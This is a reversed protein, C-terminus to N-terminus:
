LVDIIIVIIQRCSTQCFRGANLCCCCCLRLGWQYVSNPYWLAQKKDVTNGSRIELCFAACCLFIGCNCKKKKKSKGWAMNEEEQPPLAVKPMSMPLCLLLKAHQQCLHLFQTNAIFSHHLLSFSIFDTSSNKWHSRCSVSQLHKPSLPWLGIEYNTQLTCKRCIIL